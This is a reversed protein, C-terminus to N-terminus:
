IVIFDTPAVATGVHVTAFHIAAGAGNGDADFFLQGTASNYIIRDDADQAASGAVFAGSALSGQSLGAFVADDLAITDIGSAFDFLVDVNGSGLATTFAFVDNGGFGILTDRGGGGDLRNAGASGWIEQALANGTLDIPATSSMSSALLAEIEQGTTLTYSVSAYVLDRGNNAGEIVVVERDDVFYIDNGGFGILTDKGGGGRMRNAGANGWIEQVFANGTLDIAATSSLSSALLAEIHQGTTLAYSVSAYVLDRGNNAAEVVVVERNDVFYIDNGGFGILIDNGGGGRMQNAGANGRMENAYGNGALDIADTSDRDSVELLEVSSAGGLAYSATTRVSDFGEGAVELVVDQRSDVLYVDDGLGGSLRDNGAGGDLLNALANGTIVNSLANGTGSSAAGTLTLREVHDSLRHDILATVHDDGGADLEIVEDGSDDIIYRDDGLGGVLRDAGALGDLLNAHENGTIVNGLGNGTGSSATGTLTLREVHDGLAYDISATVHDDGADELEVVEDGFSDIVYEDSGGGGLLRDDGAGGDLRNDLGNGTIVNNLANGAGSLAAGTLTLREVHEALAHDAFATVHDDGEEELEVIADAASDVIYNDDGLGGVLRDDGAGGDLENALENGTIVNDLANGSGIVAAGTLTLNEVHEALTYDISATVHDNGADELEVVVDGQDDVAYADDGLGGILRDGGAGGDLLNALINGTIVNGLANGTGAIAAGALTLRELHDALTYDASATVHDDGEAELETVEDGASDVVYEDDGLGGILRDSGAGGDLVNDLANGTIVNDHGNGTGSRAAGTLTLREVEAGLWYDISATVHDEGEEELEVVEDGASDVAYQDNGAGGILRDEGGGGELLNDLANGTIINDLRNGTGSLAAGALTLREVQDALAHDLSATVHDDGEEALEVIEDGASDVAYDDDGLGGTMRDDGGGGILRDNGAAGALVNAHKNGTMVNDFANGTGSLASGTLTLREIQDVLTYDIAAAVHDDGEGELEVVEDGASDVAYDDDGLGGILRDDGAGGDLLNALDNGTLINNQANGTGSLAAGALTLREVHDALLHDATATVHDDGEAELEVVEDGASDISYDDDGLSGILRDDGAGGDLRNALGNGTIVNDLANGAGSVAAGVLTLREVHDALALDISATVHDDGERELEVVEDAASDVLYDDDGLGGVLRDDGTGGDLLNGHRNGAIVNDLGNGTGSLAAGTLTLREVHDALTHDISAAVHDEGEGDIEVVVDGASDVVYDDDGLGGVLRDAGAAGDLKNDHGNGTIVNDLANGTGHLAGGALTLHSIRSGALTADQEVVRLNDAVALPIASDFINLLHAASGGVSDRFENGSISYETALGTLIGSFQHGRGWDSIINAEIAFDSTGYFEIPYLGAQDIRNGSVTIADSFYSAIGRSTSSTQALEVDNDRFAVGSFFFLGIFPSNGEGLYLPAPVQDAAVTTFRNGEVVINSQVTNGPATADFFWLASPSFGSSEAYLMEVDNNRFTIGSVEPPNDTNGTWNRIQFGTEFMSDFVNNEILIDRAHAAGNEAGWTTGIWVGVRSFSIQNDVITINEVSSDPTQGALGGVNIAANGIGIITNGSILVDRGGYIEIGEQAPDASAATSRGDVFNGIIQMGESRLSWLSYTHGQAMRIVNGEFVGNTCIEGAGDVGTPIAQIGNFSRLPSDPPDGPMAVSEVILHRAAFNDVGVFNVVATLGAGEAGAISAWDAAPRLATGGAPDGELAVNDGLVAIPRSTWYDGPALRVTGGGAEVAVAIAANIEVDDSTGDCVYDATAAEPTGALAVTIVVAM